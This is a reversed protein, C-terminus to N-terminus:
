ANKCILFSISFTKLFKTNERQFLLFLHNIKYKGKQIELQVILRPDLDANSIRIRIRIWPRWFHPDPDSVRGTITCNEGLVTFNRQFIISFHAFEDYDCV